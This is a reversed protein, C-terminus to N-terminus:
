HSYKKKKGIYKGVLKKIIKYNNEKGRNKWKGKAKKWM